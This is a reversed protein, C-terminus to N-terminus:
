DEIMKWFMEFAEDIFELQKQKSLGNCIIYSNLGNVQATFLSFIFSVPLQKILVLSIGNQILVFLPHEQEYLNSDTVLKSYPSHRFQQLYQYELPYDLSWNVYAIFLSQFSQKSISHPELRQIVYNDLDELIFTYVAIILEEKSTFYNFLTGTAIGSNAAIKSTATGHFGNTAFLQVATKIILERKDM